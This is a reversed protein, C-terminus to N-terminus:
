IMENKIEPKLGGIFIQVMIFNATAIAIKEDWHKKLAKKNVEL